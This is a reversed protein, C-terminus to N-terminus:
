VEEANGSSESVAHPVREGYAVRDIWEHVLQEEEAKYLPYRSTLFRASPQTDVRRKAEQKLWQVQTDALAALFRVKAAEQRVRLAEEALAKEQVAQDREQRARRLALTEFNDDNPWIDTQPTRLYHALVSRRDRVRREVPGHTENYLVIELKEQAQAESGAKAVLQHVIEPTLWEWHERDVWSPLTETSAPPSGAPQAMAEPAEPLSPASPAEDESTVLHLFAADYPLHYVTGQLGKHEIKILGLMVLKPLVDRRLYHSHVDVASSLQTYGVPVTYAPREISRLSSLYSLVQRAKKGLQAKLQTVAFVDLMRMATHPRKQGIRKRPSHTPSHTLPHTPESGTTTTDKVVVVRSHTPPHYGGVWEGTPPHTAQGTLDRDEASKQEGVWEGTPPHTTGVHPHTPPDHPHTPPDGSGPDASKTQADVDDQEPRNLGLVAFPSFRRTRRDFVAELEQLHTSKAQPQKPM